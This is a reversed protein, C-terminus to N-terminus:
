GTDAEKRFSSDIGPGTQCDSLVKDVVPPVQALKSEKEAALQAQRVAMEVRGALDNFSNFSIFGWGGKVLARVNGGVSVNRGISELTKGRYSIFSSQGEELHAEIYDAPYKKLLAALKESVSTIDSM